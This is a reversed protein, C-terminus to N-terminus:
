KGSQKERDQDRLLNEALAIIEQPTIDEMCMPKM